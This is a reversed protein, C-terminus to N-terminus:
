SSEGLTIRPDLLSYVVDAIFNAVIVGITFVLVVAILVPYNVSVIAQYGFQGIGPWAFVQEIVVTGSLLWGFMMAVMTNTDILANRLIHRSRVRGESLGRARAAKVHTSWRVDLVSSRMIRAILGFELLALTTAPLILHWIGSALAALNGQILSDLVFVGSISSPPTISQSYMGGSPFIPFYSAFVLVAVVAGLFTPTSWTFLYFIRIASDSKKSFRMGSLYGLGVGLIVIIILSTIVLELTNPLYFAIESAISRGTQPDVGFNGSLYSSFFYYLQVQLPQNLHYLAKVAEITSAKAKSGAWLQAPDPNLMHSIFFIILAVGVLVLISGVARKGLYSLLDKIYV